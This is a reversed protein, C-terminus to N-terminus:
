PVVRFVTGCGFDHAGNSCKGGGGQLTTGYLAGDKGFVLGAVPWRGDKGGKFAYLETETWQGGKSAPRKLRYVDGLYRVSGAQSTGYLNGEKDLVVGSLIYYPGNDTSCTYLTTETWAGNRKAPPTLQYVAGANKNGMSTAGYMTGDLDFTVGAYPQGGDNEGTFSYIVSKTWAGGRKSPPTLKFVVGCGDSCYNSAQGGENTTGYLAGAKDAVVGAEPWFGGSFNNFRYLVQETWSGSQRSPPSLRFVTGCDTCSNSDGGSVTAGYLVGGSGLVLTGQPNRGDTGAKFRYLVSESWSGDRNPSLEFVTGCGYNHCEGGFYGGNGTTGYLNGASDFTLGSGPFEGDGKSGTFAYLVAYGWAGGKTAPAKMQFVTGCGANCYGDLSLGATTGYLNGYGDAILGAYPLAGDGKNRFRYLAKEAPASTPFTLLMSAIALPLLASLRELRM